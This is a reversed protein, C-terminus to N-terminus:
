SRELEFSSDINKQLFWAAAAIANFGAAMFWCFVDVRMFLSCVIMATIQSTPGILVWLRIITKNKRYYEHPTTRFVKGTKKKAAISGQLKM